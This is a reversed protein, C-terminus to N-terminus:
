SGNKNMGELLDLVDDWTWTKDMQKYWEKLFQQQKEIDKIQRFNHYILKIKEQEENPFSISDISAGEIDIMLNLKKRIFQSSINIWERYMSYPMKEKTTFKLIYEQFDKTVDHSDVGVGYGTNYVFHDTTIFSSLGYNSFVINKPLSKISTTTLNQVEDLTQELQSMVLPIREEMKPWDAPYTIHYNEYLMQNGQGYILTVAQSEGMYIGEEMPLNCFLAEKANLTFLYKENENANFRETLEIWEINDNMGYMHTSRKKPYWAKDGSLVTRRTKFPIFNTDILEYHFTLSSTYSPLHVKIIDGYREFEIPKDYATIKKLPYAHYFQFTPDLTEMDSFTIRVTADREKLWIEYAEIEYNLDTNIETLNKYYETEKINDARSFTKTSINMAGYGSVFSLCVFITLLIMTINRERIRISWRLSLALVLVLSILLWTILKLENGLHVDFGLYSKYVHMVSNMGIFLLSQWDDTHVSDFFSSFLETNMSGSLIWILLIGFFSSKKTGFIMAVIIGFLVTLLLPSFFYILLFRFLSFYFNSFEIGVMLYTFLYMSYTLILIIAQVLFHAVIMTSIKELLIRYGDVFFTQIGYLLERSHIRYFFVIYFISVMQVLISLESPLQGYQEM